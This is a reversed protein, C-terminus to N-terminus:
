PTHHGQEISYVHSLISRWHGSEGLKRLPCCAIPWNSWRSWTLSYSYCPLDFERVLLPPAWWMNWKGIRGSSRSPLWATRRWGRPISCSFALCTSIGGEDGITFGWSPFTEFGKKSLTSCIFIIHVYQLLPNFDFNELTILTLTCCRRLLLRERWRFLIPWVHDVVLMM